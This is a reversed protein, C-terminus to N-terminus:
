TSYSLGENLLKVCVINNDKDEGVNYLCRNCQKHEGDCWYISNQLIINIKEPLCM